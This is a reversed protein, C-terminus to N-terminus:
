LKEKSFRITMGPKYEPHDSIVQEIKQIFDIVMQVKAYDGKFFVFCSGSHHDGSRIDKGSENFEIIAREFVQMSEPIEGPEFWKGCSCEGMLIDSGCKDCKERTM